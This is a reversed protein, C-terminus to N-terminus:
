RGPGTFESTGWPPVSPALPMPQGGPSLHPQVPRGYQDASHGLGYANINPQITPDPPNLSSSGQPAWSFPRGTADSHVGPGYADKQFPQLLPPQEGPMPYLQAHAPLAVLVFLLGSPIRFRLTAM